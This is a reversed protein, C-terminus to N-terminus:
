VDECVQVPLQASPCCSSKRATGARSETDVDNGYPTGLGMILTNGKKSKAIRGKRIISNGEVVKWAGGDIFSLARSMVAMIM